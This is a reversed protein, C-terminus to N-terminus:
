YTVIRGRIDNNPFKVEFISPDLSPYVVGSRTADAISYAINSYGLTEDYLNTIQIYTTTQVGPVKSLLNFIDAYVIPEGIQWRDIAFMGKLADICRALVENGNHNRLPIIGFNVGINVIFADRFNVSDTLMRYMSLYTKLNEKVATNVPALNHNNDYGLMYMNLALPNAVTDYLESTAVNAQEDPAIYVKSVSGFSSPMAYARIIYDEKTVARNQSTFQALTNHRIEEITEESRGGVAAYRNNIAVSSRVINNLEPTAPPLTTESLGLSVIDTITNSPVNATLGGGVLYRVTLSTNSPAIGYAGTFIPAQPDISADLDDMGTPLAVGINEPIALIEEDPHSSTGAGFQVELGQSTVRSIFRRPVRKLKMLYPTDESYVAADPDNFATNAVREFVTDQALYPVETWTHGDSDVISQIGILNLDTLQFKFYKSTNEVNIVVEKIEASVARKTKRALYYNPAGATDISYVSYETPDQLNNISFDIPDQVLFEINNSTSRIILGADLKLAYAMDPITDVGTGTAPLLQFIDIDVLSPSSLRPRYGGASALDLINRRETARTILSEKLQSDTYYSLVDGVYAAMEVFMMGPSAENFDNYTDPYYTKAFEVLGAKLGDFDRGLYKIEKSTQTNDNHM